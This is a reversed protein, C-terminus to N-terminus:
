SEGHGKHKYMCVHAKCVLRMGGVATGELISMRGGGEKGGGVVSVDECVIVPSAVFSM